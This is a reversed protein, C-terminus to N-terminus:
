SQLTPSYPVKIGCCQCSITNTRNCFPANMAGWTHINNMCKKPIPILIKPPLFKRELTM